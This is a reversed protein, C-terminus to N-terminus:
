ISEGRLERALGNAVYRSLRDRVPPFVAPGIIGELTPLLALVKIVGTAVEASLAGATNSGAADAETTGVADSRADPRADELLDGFIGEFYAVDGISHQALREPPLARALYALEEPDTLVRLFPRGSLVGSAAEIVVRIREEPEPGAQKLAEGIEARIDEEARELLDFFFEEKSRAFRYFSGKAIGAAEAIEAITTRRIGRAAALREAETYLQERIRHQEGETFGRPM